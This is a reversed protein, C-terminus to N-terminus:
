DPHAGWRAAKGRTDLHVFPGHAKTAPYASMGGQLHAFYATRSEAELLKLLWLADALEVRGNRDLDDMQGDGDRDIYFDAADGYLHRSYPVNGLGANYQPTRYGSMITVASSPFGKAALATLIHELAEVLRPQVYLYKPWGGQQKCLFQGLRLNPSLRVGATRQTVKLLGPPPQYHRPDPSASAAPYAGVSFNDLTHQGEALPTLQLVNVQHRAHRTTVKLTSVDRNESPQFLWVHDSSQVLTGDGASVTLSADADTAYSRFVVPEGPEVYLSHVSAALTTGNATIETGARAAGTTCCLLLVLFSTRYLGNARASGRTRWATSRELSLRM